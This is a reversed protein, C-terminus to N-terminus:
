DETKREGNETKIRSRLSKRRAARFFAFLNAKKEREADDTGNKKSDKRRMQISDLPPTLNFLM